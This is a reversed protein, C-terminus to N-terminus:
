LHMARTHRWLHLYIREPIEPCKAKASDAYKQMMPRVTDDCVPKHEGKRETHFLFQESVASEEEYFVVMYRKLYSM